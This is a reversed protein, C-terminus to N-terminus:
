QKKGFLPTTPRALLTMPRGGTVVDARPWLAPTVLLPALGLGDLKRTLWQRHQDRRKACGVGGPWTPGGRTCGRASSSRTPM